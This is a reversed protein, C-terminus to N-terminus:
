RIVRVSAKTVVMRALRTTEARAASGLGSKEKLVLHTSALTIRSAFTLASGASAAFQRASPLFHASFFRASASL